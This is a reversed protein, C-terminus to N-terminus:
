KGAGDGVPRISRWIDEFVADAYEVEGPLNESTDVTILLTQDATVPYLLYRFKLFTKDHAIERVIPTVPPPIPIFPDAVIRQRVDPPIPLVAKRWGANLRAACEAVSEDRISLALQSLLHTGLTPGLHVSSLMLSSAQTKTGSPTKKEQFGWTLSLPVKIEINTEPVRVYHYERTVRTVEGVPTSTCSTCVAILSLVGAVWSLRSVTSKPIPASTM